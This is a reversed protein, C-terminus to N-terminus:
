LVNSRPVNPRCAMQDVIRKLNIEFIDAAFAHRFRRFRLLVAFLGNLSNSGKEIAANM